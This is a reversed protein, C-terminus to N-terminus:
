APAATARLWVPLEDDARAGDLPEWDFGSPPDPLPLPLWSGCCPEPEFPSFWPPAFWPEPPVLEPVPESLAEASAAFTSGPMTSMVESRFYLPADASPVPMTSDDLPRTSVLLWTM